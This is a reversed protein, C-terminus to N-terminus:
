RKVKQLFFFGNCSGKVLHKNGTTQTEKCCLPVQLLSSRSLANAGEEIEINRVDTNNLLTEEDNDKGIPEEEVDSSKNTLTRELSKKESNERENAEDSSKDECEVRQGEDKDGKDPCEKDEKDLCESNGKDSSERCKEDNNKDSDPTDKLPPDNLLNTADDGNANVTTSELLPVREQHEGNNNNLSTQTKRRPPIPPPATRTSVTTAMTIRIYRCAILRTIDEYNCLAEEIKHAHTVKKEPRVFVFRALTALSRAIEGPTKRM